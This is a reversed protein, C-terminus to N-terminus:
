SSERHILIPKILPADISVPTEEGRILATFYAVIREVLATNSIDFSTLSPTTLQAFPLNDCGILAVDDPVSYGHGQLVNLLLFGYEDNYTFIGTPRSDKDWSKIINTAQRIDYDMDIRDVVLDNQLSERLFGKYRQEGLYAIRPDQPVIAAVRMHGRSALHRAAEMGVGSFDVTINPIEFGPAEGYAIIVKVGNRRLIEVDDEILGESEVIVGIPHFSAIKRSPSENSHADFVQLMVTYGLDRLSHALTQLFEMSNPNYPWDFFPLFVLDSQGTRLTTAMEHPVYGIERAAKLVRDKTAQSIRSDPVNNLVYSVTARSVNALRAVDQSTPPKVSRHENQKDPQKQEPFNKEDSM